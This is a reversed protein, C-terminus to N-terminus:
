DNFVGGSYKIGMANLIGKVANIKSAEPYVLLFQQKGKLERSVKQRENSEKMLRQYDAYNCSKDIMDIVSRSRDFDIQLKGKDDGALLRDKIDDWEWDTLRRVKSM